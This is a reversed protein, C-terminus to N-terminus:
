STRPKTGSGLAPENPPDDPVKLTRIRRYLTSRSMGLAQAALVKNGRTARLAAIIADHELQQLRTLRRTRAGRQYAIPLDGPIVDGRSRRELVDTLVDALERFNGPWSHAALVQITEPTLRVTSDAGLRQLVSRLVLSFDEVSQRLPTTESRRVCRAALGVVEGSLRELPISTMTMWVRRRDLMTSLRRVDPEPLLHVDEVLLMGSQESLSQLLRWWASSGIAGIDAADVVHVAEEGAIARAQTTRGSGTEGAVWAPARSTPAARLLSVSLSRSPQADNIPHPEERELRDIEFLVGERTQAIRVARVTVDIGATLRVTRPESLHTPTTADALARFIAQDAGELLEMVAANAVLAGDHLVMVPANRRRRVSNRYAQLVSRDSVSARDSLCREIMRITSIVFPRLLPTAQQVPCSVDLVGELAGTVPNVIPHGYCAFRKLADVFHEEGVIGFGQRLELVSGIGNPGTTEEAFKRGAVIGAQDLAAEVGADGWRRGIVVGSRDALVLGFSTGALQGEVQDLVPEAVVALRSRPEFDEVSLSALDIDPVVGHLAARRWSSAITADSSPREDRCQPLEQLPATRSCAANSSSPTM